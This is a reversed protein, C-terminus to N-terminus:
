REDAPVPVRPQRREQKLRGPQCEAIFDDNSARKLFSVQKKKPTIIELKMWIGNPAEDFYYDLLKGRAVKDGNYGYEDNLKELTADFTEKDKDGLKDYKARTGIYQGKINIPEATNLILCGQGLGAARQTSTPHQVLQLFTEELEKGIQCSIFNIRKPGYKKRWEQFKADGFIRQVRSKNYAKADDETLGGPSVDRGSLAFFTEAGHMAMSLTWEGGKGSSKLLEIKLDELDKVFVAGGLNLKNDGVAYYQNTPKPPDPADPKDDRRITGGARGDRQLSRLVGVTARNGASQQLHRVKATHGHPQSAVSVTAPRRSAAPARRQALFRM